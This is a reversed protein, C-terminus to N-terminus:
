PGGGAWFVQFLANENEEEEVDTIVTGRNLIKMPHLKVLVLVFDQSNSVCINGAFLGLHISDLLFQCHRSCIVSSSVSSTFLESGRELATKRAPTAVGWTGSPDLSM